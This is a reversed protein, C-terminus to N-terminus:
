SVMWDVENGVKLVKLIISLGSSVKQMLAKREYGIFLDTTNNSANGIRIWKSQNTALSLVKATQTALLASDYGSVGSINDSIETLQM